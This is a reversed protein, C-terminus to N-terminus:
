TQALWSTAGSTAAGWRCGCGTSGGCTCLTMARYASATCALPVDPAVDPQPVPMGPTVCRKAPSCFLRPISAGREWVSRVCVCVVLFVCRLRLRVQLLQYTFETYSIGSESEMRKRVSEKALM